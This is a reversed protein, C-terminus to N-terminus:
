HPKELSLQQSIVTLGIPDVRIYDNDQQELEQKPLLRWTLSVRMDSKKSVGSTVKDVTFYVNTKFVRTNIGNIQGTIQDYHNIPNEKWIIKIHNKSKAYQQVKGIADFGSKSLFESRLDNDMFVQAEGYDAAITMPQVGFRKEVYKALLSDVTTKFYLQEDQSKYTVNEWTGNPFMKIFMIEKNNQAKEFAYWSFCMAIIVVVILGVLITFLRNREAKTQGLENIPPPIDHPSLDESTVSEIM